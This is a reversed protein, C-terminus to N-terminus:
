SEYLWEAVADAMEDARQFRHEPEREMARTCIDCLQIPLPVGEPSVDEFLTRDGTSRYKELLDPRRRMAKSLQVPVPDLTAVQKVVDPGTGNFPARNCLIHYLIAGLAYIDSRHDLDSARGEAQEPSMYAPTGAVDGVRTAHANDESRDTLVSSERFEEVEPADLVKVLGWDVVLVEQYAGLMVNGPKLDRHIVGKSHAFAMSLCITEFARVLRRFTWGDQDSRWVGDRSATHVKAIVHGLDRGQVEKMTYFYRGDPLQGVDHVPVIGSHELQACAQAEEVFRAIADSYRLLDRHIIKMALTRRFRPDFVRRVEGMAGKAILGRDDYKGLRTSQSRSPIAPKPITRQDSRMVMTAEPDDGHSYPQTRPHEIDFSRQSQHEISTIVDTRCDVAEQSPGSGKDNEENSM